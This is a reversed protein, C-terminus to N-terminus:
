TANPAPNKLRSASSEQAQNGNSASNILGYAQGMVRELKGSAYIDDLSEFGFEDLFRKTTRWYTGRGEGNADGSILKRKALTELPGNSNVGRIANIKETNVPQKLAIIALTELAQESLPKMTRNHKLALNCRCARTKNGPAMWEWSTETSARTEAFGLRRDLEAVLGEVTETEVDLVRALVEASLPSNSTFM